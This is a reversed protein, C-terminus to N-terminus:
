STLRSQGFRRTFDSFSNFPASPVRKKGWLPPGAIGDMELVWRVAELAPVMCGLFECIASNRSQRLLVGSRRPPTRSARARIQRPRCVHLLAPFRGASRVERTGPRRGTRPPAVPRRQQRGPPRHYRGLRRSPAHWFRFEQSRGHWGSSSRASRHRVAAIGPDNCACSALRALAGQLTLGQIRLRAAGVVM